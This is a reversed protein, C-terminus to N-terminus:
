PEHAHAAKIGSVSMVRSPRTNNSHRATPKPAHPTVAADAILRDFASYPPLLSLFGRSADEVYALESGWTEGDLSGVTIAAKELMEWVRPSAGRAQAFRLAEGALGKARAMPKRARTLM